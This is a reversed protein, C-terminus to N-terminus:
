YLIAPTVLLKTQNILYQGFCYKETCKFHSNIYFNVDGNRIDYYPFSKEELKAELTVTQGYTIQKSYCNIKTSKKGEVDESVLIVTLILIIIISIAITKM